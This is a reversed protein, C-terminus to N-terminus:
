VKGGLGVQGFDKVLTIRGRMDTIPKTYHITEINDSNPFEQFTIMSRSIQNM